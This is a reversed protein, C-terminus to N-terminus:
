PRNTDDSAPFQPSAAPRAPPTGGRSHGLCRHNMSRYFDALNGGHAVIAHVLEDWLANDVQGPTIGLDRCINAIVIGIPRHRVGAVIEKPTPLRALRPDDPLAARQAPPQTAGPKRRAPASSAPTSATGLDRGSAARRDLRAELAAARHLGRTIHALIQAIDHTGFANTVLAAHPVAGRQQIAGALEKGYDILGRVLCLLRGIRSPIGAGARNPDPQTAPATAAACM